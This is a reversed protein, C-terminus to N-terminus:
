LCTRVKKDKASSCGNKVSQSMVFPLPDRPKLVWGLNMVEEGLASECETEERPRFVSCRLVLRPTKHPESFLMGKVLYGQELNWSSAIYMYIKLSTNRLWRWSLTSGCAAQQFNKRTKRTYCATWSIPKNGSQWLEGCLALHTETMNPFASRGSHTLLTPAPWYFLIM